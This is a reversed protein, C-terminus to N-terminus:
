STECGMRRLMAPCIENVSKACSRVKSPVWWWLKSVFYRYQNFSINDCWGGTRFASDPNLTGRWSRAVPPHQVKHPTHYNRASLTGSGKTTRGTPGPRYTKTLMRSVRYLDIPQRHCLPRCRAYRVNKAIISLIPTRRSTWDFSISFIVGAVVIFIGRPNNRALKVQAIPTHDTSNQPTTYANGDIKDEVDSEIYGIRWVRNEM